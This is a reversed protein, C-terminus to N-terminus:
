RRLESEIAEIVRQNGGVVDSESGWVTNRLDDPLNWARWAGTRLMELLEAPATVSRGELLSEYPYTFKGSETQLYEALDYPYFAVPRDLLAFDFFVSSYDTILLDVGSLMASVDYDSPVSIIRGDSSLKDPSFIHSKLLFVGDTARMVDSLADLDPLPEVAPSTRRWTPVYLVVYSATSRARAILERERRLVEPSPRSPDALPVVRPSAPGVVNSVRGDFAKTMVDACWTSPVALIDHRSFKPAFMVRSRLWQRWTRPHYTSHAPETEISFEIQKLPIGHYLNVHVAGGTLAFNVDRADGTYVVAGASLAIRVGRWSWRLHAEGGTARIADVVKGDGSIWVAIVDPRSRRVDDLLYISHDNLHDSRTGFAWLNRDRPCWTSVFRATLECLCAVARALSWVM